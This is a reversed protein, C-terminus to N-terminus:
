CASSAVLDASSVPRAVPPVVQAGPLGSLSMEHGYVAVMAVNVQLLIPRMM